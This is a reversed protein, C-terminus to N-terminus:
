IKIWDECWIDEVRFTNVWRKPAIVLKNINSNLWAAWWSFSSNAIINHKCLKMMYMDILDDKTQVVKFNEYPFIKAAEEIDNSFIYFRPNEIRSEIISIANAYYDKTCIGGYIDHKEVYDGLRVHISVSNSTVIEKEIDKMSNEKLEPFKFENVLDSQIDAFYKESQWYGNLYAEDFELIKENFCIDREQYYTNASFFRYRIKKLLNNTIGSLREIDKPAAEKLCIGLRSLEFERQERGDKFLELDARVDKGLLEFKRYLAFQFMQNGIGGQMRIIIM